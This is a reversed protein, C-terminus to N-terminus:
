WPCWHWKHSWKIMWLKMTWYSHFFTLYKSACKWIHGFNIVGWRKLQLFTVSPLIIGLCFHDWIVQSISPLVNMHGGIAVHTVEVWFQGKVFKKGIHGTVTAHSLIARVTDGLCKSWIENGRADIGSIVENWWKCNWQEIYISTPWIHPHVNEFTDLEHGRVEEVAVISCFSIHYGFLFPRMHSRVYQTVGEYSGLNHCTDGRGVIRGWSVTKGIHSTDAAHWLIIWITDGLWKAWIENGHADVGSIVENWWECNCQEIHISTPWINHRM